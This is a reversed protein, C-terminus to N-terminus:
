EFLDSQMRRIIRDALKRQDGRKLSGFWISRDGAEAAWVVQKSQTDVLRVYGENRDKARFTRYADLTRYSNGTLIYDSVTQDVTVTMPLHRKIIEAALFGDLGGTIDALFIRPNQRLDRHGNLAVTRPEDLRPIPASSFHAVQAFVTGCIMSLVALRVIRM